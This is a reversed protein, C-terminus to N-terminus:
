GILEWQDMPTNVFGFFYRETEPDYLVTECGQGRDIFGIGSEYDVKAMEYAKRAKFFPVWTLAINTLKVKPHYPSLGMTRAVSGAQIEDRVVQMASQRQSKSLQKDAM